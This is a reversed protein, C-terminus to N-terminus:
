EPRSACYGFCMEVQRDGSDSSLEELRLHEAAKGGCEAVQRARRRRRGKDERTKGRRGEDERTKRALTKGSSYCHEECCSRSRGGRIKYAPTEKGEEQKSQSCRWELEKRELWGRVQFYQKLV